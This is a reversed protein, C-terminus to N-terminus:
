GEGRAVVVADRRGTLYGREWATGAPNGVFRELVAAADNRGEQYRADGFAVILRRLEAFRGSAMIDVVFRAADREIVGILRELQARLENDAAPGGSASM